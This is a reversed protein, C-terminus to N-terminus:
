ENNKLNREYKLLTPDNIIRFLRYIIPFDLLINYFLRKKASISKKIEKKNKYISIYEKTKRYVERKVNTNKSLFRYALLEKLAEIVYFEKVTKPLENNEIIHNFYWEVLDFHETYKLSHMASDNHQFYYYLKLKLMAVKINSQELVQLNFITDEGLKINIPFKIDKICEM